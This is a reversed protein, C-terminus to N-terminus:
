LSAEAAREDLQARVRAHTQKDLDYGMLFLIAIFSVILVGPGYVLGLMLVKSDAVTGPEAKSPFDAWKLGLGALQSGLGSAAKGAFALVGFFIGEQRAGTRLEHMDTIDALMSGAAVLAAAGAVGGIFSLSLLVSLYLPSDQGPYAGVMKAVPLGAVIISFVSIGILFMPKKEIRKGLISWIPAGVLVGSLALLPIYKIQETPLKWFYTGMHLVLVHEVGRAVFFIVVGVFFLRFQKNGLAVFTDAWLGKFSFRQDPAPRPLRPICHHTGWASLIVTVAMLVGFLVGFGPYGAPNLQGNEYAATPRFFVAFAVFILIGGGFYGFFTRFAVVATREHYDSSLEAGLALHPVFYLSMAAPTAVAFGPLWLFLGLQGLGSPPNFVMAFTVALPIASAYMLPHRRGWKHRLSDSWAGVLPDTIADVVLAIMLAAGTLAPDLGLVNNFYFLLFITFAATKFGEACQGVGYALKTNFRLTSKTSDSM